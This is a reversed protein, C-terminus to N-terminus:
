ITGMLLAIAAIVFVAASAALVTVVKEGWDARIITERIQHSM